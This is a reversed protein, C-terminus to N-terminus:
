EISVLQSSSQCGREASLRMLNSISIKGYNALLCNNPFVMEQKLDECGIEDLIIQASAM